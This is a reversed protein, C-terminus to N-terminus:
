AAILDRYKWRAKGLYTDTQKHCDICLTRGNDIEFRLEPFYAFPKIHDANLKGSKSEGCMTCAYGDRKFVETRWKKYEISKRIKEADKTVGGKWNPNKDGIFYVNQIGRNWAVQAGKKGKNWPVGNNLGSLNMWEMFGKKGKNWSPKGTMVESHKKAKEKDKGM